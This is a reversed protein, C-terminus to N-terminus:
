AAIVIRIRTLKSVADARYVAVVSISHVLHLERQQNTSLHHSAKIEASRGVVCCIDFSSPCLM